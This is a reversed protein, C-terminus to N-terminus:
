HIHMSDIRARKSPQQKLGASASRPTTPAYTNKLALLNSAAESEESTWPTFYRVNINAAIRRLNDPLKAFLPCDRVTHHRGSHHGPCLQCTNATISPEWAARAKIMWLLIAPRNNPIYAPAGADKIAAILDLLPTAGGFREMVEATVRGLLPDAAALQLRSQAEESPISALNQLLTHGKVANADRGPRRQIPPATAQTFRDNRTQQRGHMRADRPTSFRTNQQQALGSDSVLATPRGKFASPAFDVTHQVPHAQYLQAQNADTRAQELWMLAWLVFERAKTCADKGHRNEVSLVHLRAANQLDQQTLFRRALVAFQTAAATVLHRLKDLLFHAFEYETMFGHMQKFDCFLLQYYLRIDEVVSQFTTAAAIRYSRWSQEIQLRFGQGPFFHDRIQTLWMTVTCKEVTRCHETIRHVPSGCYFQKSVHTIVQMESLSPCSVRQKLLEKCFTHFKLEAETDASAIVKHPFKVHAFHYEATSFWKSNKDDFFNEVPCELSHASPLDSLVQTTRPPPQVKAKWPLSGVEALAVEKADSPLSATTWDLELATSADLMAQWAIYVRNALGSALAVFEKGEFAGQFRDQASGVIAMVSIDLYSFGAVIRSWANREIPGTTLCLTLLLFDSLAAPSIFSLFAVIPASLLHALSSPAFDHATFEAKVVATVRDSRICFSRHRSSRDDVLLDSSAALETGSVIVLARMAACVSELKETDLPLITRAWFMAPVSIRGLLNLTGTVGDVDIDGWTPFSRIRAVIEDSVPGILQFRSQVSDPAAM